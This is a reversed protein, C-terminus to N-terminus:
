ADKHSINSSHSLHHGHTPPSSPESDSFFQCGRAQSVPSNTLCPLNMRFECRGEQFRCVSSMLMYSGTLGSDWINLRQINSHEVLRTECFLLM